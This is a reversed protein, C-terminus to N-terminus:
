ANIFDYPFAKISIEDFIVRSPTGSLHLTLDAIDKPHLIDEQVDKDVSLSMETLVSGPSLLIYRIGTNLGDSQLSKVMGRLGAKSAAYAPDKPSGSVGWRSGIFIFMGKTSRELFHETGYKAIYFSGSLNTDITDQWDKSNTNELSKLKLIGACNIILDFNVSVSGFLREVNESSSIDVSQYIFNQHDELDKPLDKSRSVGYVSHGDELFVHAIESGIGGTVGTILVQKQMKNM